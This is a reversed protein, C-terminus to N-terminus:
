QRPKERKIEPKKKKKEEEREKEGSEQVSQATNEPKPEERESARFVIKLVRIKYPIDRKKKEKRKKKKKPLYKGHSLWSVDRKFPEWGM